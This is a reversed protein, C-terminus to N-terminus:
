RPAEIVPSVAADVADLAFALGDEPDEIAIRCQWGTSPEATDWASFRLQDIVEPLDEVEVDAASAVAAWAAYRGWAMGRRRGEAGGSAAAWALLALATSADIEAIRARGIGLAAIADVAGGEVAVARARGNSQATWTRAVDLLPNADFKIAAPPEPLEVPDFTPLDPVPFDAKDPSYTTLPYPHPEFDLLALPVPLVDADVSADSDLSEGRAVREHAVVARLPGPPVHDRLEDWTHTSAAVEALPGLAFQGAGEVVVAGAHEGPAELALRYEAHAAAPWHQRGREFAARARHRLEAVGDWDRAALLRELERLLEDLDPDGSGSQTV